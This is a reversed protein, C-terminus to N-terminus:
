LEVNVDGIGYMNGFFFFEGGLVVSNGKGGRFKESFVREGCWILM